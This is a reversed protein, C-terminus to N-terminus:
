ADKKAREDVVVEAVGADLMPISDLRAGAHVGPTAAPTLGPTDLDPDSAAGPSAQWRAVDARLQELETQFRKGFVDIYFTAGNHISWVFVVALFAASAWRYWFWLPCPLVTCMAYAYQVLMFAPEQLAAPQRLVLRGLWTNAYSRRLWTYSTPRGAAIKERRRVSIMVHYTVQWVMYPVTAWLLMAGLSYHEPDGRRSHRISYVAPFRAAQQAEPTLHVMCHLAVPPM